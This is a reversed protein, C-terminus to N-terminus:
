RNGGSLRVKMSLRGIRVSWGRDRETSSAPPSLFTNARDLLDRLNAADDIMTKHAALAREVSARAREVESVNVEYKLRAQNGRAAMYLLASAASLAIFLSAVLAMRASSLVDILAILGATFLLPGACPWVFTLPFRAAASVYIRLSSRIVRFAGLVASSAEMSEHLRASHVDRSVRMSRTAILRQWSDLREGLISPSIPASQPSETCADAAARISPPDHVFESAGDGKGLAIRLTVLLAAAAVFFLITGTIRDEEVGGAQTAKFMYSASVSVLLGSILAAMAPAIVSRFDIHEGRLTAYSKTPAPRITRLTGIEVCALAVNLVCLLIGTGFVFDWLM